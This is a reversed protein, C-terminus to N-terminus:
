LSTFKFDSILCSMNESYFGVKGGTFANGDYVDYVQQGNIRIILRNSRTEIEINSVVGAAFAGSSGNKVPVTQGIIKKAYNYKILEVSDSSIKLFYGQMRGERQDYTSQSFNRMRFVVGNIGSGSKVTYNCSVTYDAIGEKGYSLLATGSSPSQTGSATVTYNNNFDSFEGKDTKLSNEYQENQVADANLIFSSVNLKGSKLRVKIFHEGADLEMVGLYVRQYEDNVIQTSPVTFETLTKNDLIFETEAGVGDKHVEAWVAYNGSKPVNVAYKVWDGADGLVLATRGNAAVTSEREGQRVGNESVDANKISFGRNEGKLYNVAPFETPLNKVADYDSSGFADNSFATYEPAANEGYGIRGGTLCADYGILRMSNYYVYSIGYGSEVRVTNLANYNKNKKISVKSIQQSLGSVVTNLAITNESADIVIETYNEKDRYAAILSLPKSIDNFKFNYEATFVDQTQAGSLKFADTEVLDKGESEFDPSKPVATEYDTVGNAMLQWGNTVYRDLNYHRSPPGGMGVLNHYATYISDLDRGFVNSSHGLGNFTDKTSILTINNDPQIFSGLGSMNKAYSYAIRYGKSLVHNGTYTIYSYDGRRIVGPGEVWGGLDITNLRQNASISGSSGLNDIDSIKSFEMCDAGTFLIYLEGNDDIFFSGDIGRGMNESIRRFGSIPNDSKYIFHGSGGKSQCMYFSGNYYVVEPAYAGQTTDETPSVAYGKYEWNIMDSSSFVKIGKERDLTSPYLYYKGNYRMVFPDGTGYELDGMLDNSGWQGEITMNNKYTEGTQSVYDIENKDAYPTTTPVSPEPTPVPSPKEEGCGSVAVAMILSLMLVCLKKSM